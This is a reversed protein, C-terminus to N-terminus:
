KVVAKWMLDAVFRNGTDNLHVRDVTLIGRDKNEPNHELNYARFEKRLDILDLNFKKALDRIQKSYQNLDGDQQNSYDTKEGIAAPTCLIVEINQAQLKKIIAEYFRDFKDPDTGTGHSAKHWVDNVGIFIVVVDPNQALVDDEMRLYLDYVKNGGIGAGVFEYDNTLNKKKLDEQMLTIYGGPRVGAQTISDGFFVVKKPKIFTFSAMALALCLPLIFKM